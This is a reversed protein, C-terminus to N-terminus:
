AKTSRGFLTPPATLDRDVRCDTSEVIDLFTKPHMSGFGEIIVCIGEGSTDLSATPFAAVYREIRAWEQETVEM